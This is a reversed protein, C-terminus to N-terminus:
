ELASVDSATEIISATVEAQRRRNITTELDQASQEANDYASRMAMLTAAQAGAAHELAHTFLATELSRVRLWSAVTRRDPFHLVGDDGDANSATDEWPVLQCCSPSQRLMNVYRQSYVDVGSVLGDDCLQRIFDALCKAQAFTPVDDFPFEQTVAIGHERCFATAMKGCLVVLPKETAQRYHDYFLGTMESHFAGCLGRNGSFLVACRPKGAAEPPVSLTADGSLAALESCISAYPRAAERMANVRSFKATAVTRMAGALQGTARVSRLRKRLERLAAM